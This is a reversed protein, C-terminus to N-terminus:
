VCRQQPGRYGIYTGIPGDNPLLVDMSPQETLLPRGTTQQALEASMDRLANRLAPAVPVGTHRVTRTVARGHVLRRTGIVCPACQCIGQKYMTWPSRKRWTSFCVHLGAQRRAPRGCSCTTAAWCVSCGGLALLLVM